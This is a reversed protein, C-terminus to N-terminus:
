KRKLKEIGRLTGVIRSLITSVIKDLLNLIKLFNSVSSCLEGGRKGVGCSGCECMPQVEETVVNQQAPLSLLGNKAEM